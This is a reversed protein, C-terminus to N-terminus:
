KNNVVDRFVFSREFQGGDSIPIKTLKTLNTM